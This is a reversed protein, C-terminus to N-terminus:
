QEAVLRPKASESKRAADVAKRVTAVVESVTLTSVSRAGLNPEYGALLLRLALTYADIEPHEAVFSALPTQLTPLDCPTGMDSLSIAVKRSIEFFPKMGAQTSLAFRDWHEWFEAFQGLEGKARARTAALLSATDPFREARPKRNDSRQARKAM